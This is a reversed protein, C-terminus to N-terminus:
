TKRRRWFGLVGLAAALSLFTSPEPIDSSFVGIADPNPNDTIGPGATIRVSQLNAPDVITLDFLVILFEQQVGATDAIGWFSAYPTRLIPVEAIADDDNFQDRLNLTETQTGDDFVFTAGEAASGPNGNGDIYVIDATALVSSPIGLTTLFSSDSYTRNLDFNTVEITSGTVLGGVAQDPEGVTNGIDIVTPNIQNVTTGWRVIAADLGPSVWSLLGAALVFLHLKM